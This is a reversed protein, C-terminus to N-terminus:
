EQDVVLRRGGAALSELGDLLPLAVVVRGLADQAGGAGAGARREPGVLLEDPGGRDDVRVPEDEVRTVPARGFPQGDQILPVPGPAAALDEVAGLGARPLDADGLRDGLHLP